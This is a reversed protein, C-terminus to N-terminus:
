QIRASTKLPGAGNSGAGTGKLGAEVLSQVSRNNRLERIEGEAVDCFQEAAV